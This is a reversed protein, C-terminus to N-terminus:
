WVLAIKFTCAPPTFGTFFDSPEYYFRISGPVFDFSITETWSAEENNYYIDFPLPVQYEMDTNFNQMLYGVIVGENYVFTTLDSYSVDAYFYAQDDSLIWQDVTFYAISFNASGNEGPPGMPGEPGTCSLFLASCALLFTLIKKM